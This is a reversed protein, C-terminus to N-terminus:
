FIDRLSAVETWPGRRRCTGLLFNRGVGARVGAVVDSVKDGVLISSALDLKLDASAQLIMGPNPKRCPADRRYEPLGETPHFPSYYVGAFRIGRAGFEDLMWETLKEFDEKSYYGRAIGAQNTVIVLELGVDLM